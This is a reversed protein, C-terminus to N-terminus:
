RNWWRILILAMSATFLSAAVAALLWGTRRIRAQLVPHRDAVLGTM